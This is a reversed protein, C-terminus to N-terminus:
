IYYIYITCKAHAVEGVPLALMGVVIVVHKSYLCKYLMYINNSAEVRSLM